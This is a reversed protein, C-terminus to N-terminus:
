SVTKSVDQLRMHVYRRWIVCMCTYMCFCFSRLSVSSYLSLVFLFRRTNWRESSFQRSLTEIIERRGRPIHRGGDVFAARKTIQLLYAVPIYIAVHERTVISSRITEPTVNVRHMPGRAINSSFCPFVRVCAVEKLPIRLKTIKYSYSCMSEKGRPLNLPNGLM